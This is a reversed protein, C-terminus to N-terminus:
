KWGGGFIILEAKNDKLHPEVAEVLEFELVKGSSKYIPTQMGCIKYHENLPEIEYMIVVSGGAYNTFNMPVFGKGKNYLKGNYEYQVAHDTADYTRLRVKLQDIFNRTEFERLNFRLGIHMRQRPLSGIHYSYKRGTAHSLDYTDLVLLYRMASSGAGRDIFIGDGKYSFTWPAVLYIQLLVIVSLMLAVIIVIYKIIKKVKM